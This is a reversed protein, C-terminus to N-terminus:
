QKIQAIKKKATELKNRNHLVDSSQTKNLLRTIRRDAQLSDERVVATCHKMWLVDAHPCAYREEVWWCAMVACLREQTSSSLGSHALLVSNNWVSYFWLSHGLECIYLVMHAFRVFFIDWKDGFWVFSIIFWIKYSSTM